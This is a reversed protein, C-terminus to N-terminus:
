EPLQKSFNLAYLTLAVVLRCALEDLGVCHFDISIQVSLHNASVLFQIYSWIPSKNIRSKNQLPTVVSIYGVYLNVVSFGVFM